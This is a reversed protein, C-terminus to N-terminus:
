SGRQFVQFFYEGSGSVAKINVRYRGAQDACYRVAPFPNRSSDAGVVTSGRTISVELDNVGDGGVVLAAVCQGSELQMDHRATAGERRLRGREPNVAVSPEYGEVNLLSSVEALRVYILGALGFPGRTGRPWRYAQYVFDGGGDAMSVQMRYAGSSEACVRVIPRADEAVDRDVPSGNSGLLILDMNRVSTAGVAVIAYCKGGELQLSIDRTAGQALQGRTQDGYSEYGRARMDNDLLAYREDLGQSAQHTGLVPETTNTGAQQQQVWGAVYLNGEGRYMNARLVYPGTAPPCFEVVADLDTSREDALTEGEPNHIYLDTDQAGEGGLSAFTYCVGQQLNLNRNYDESASARIGQPPGVRRFRQRSLRQDIATLRNQVEPELSATQSQTPQTAAAGGLLSALQPDGNGGQYLAYYYEGSGSAMQLRAIYRGGSGPCTRVWPRTDAAVNYEVQRGQPDLVVMNLDTNDAGLALAVYCQGPTANIAYAVMQGTLMNANRVAPGVRQFGRQTLHRDVQNLLQLPTGSAAAVTGGGGGNTVTGGGGNGVNPGGGGQDPDIVIRRPSPGCALVLSAVFVLITVRM